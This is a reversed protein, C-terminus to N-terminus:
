EKIKASHQSNTLQRKIEFEMPLLHSVFFSQYENGEILDTLEEVLELARYYNM